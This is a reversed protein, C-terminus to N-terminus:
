EIYEYKLDYDYTTISIADDVEIKYHQSVLYGAGNYVKQSWTHNSKLPPGGAVYYYMSEAPIELFTKENPFYILAMEYYSWHSPLPKNGNTLTVSDFLTWTNGNLWYRKMSLLNGNADYKVFHEGTKKIPATTYANVKSLQNNEYEFTYYYDIVADSGYADIRSVQKSANYTLGYRFSLQNDKNYQLTTTILDNAYEYLRFGQFTSQGQGTSYINRRIPKKDSSYIYEEALLNNSFVKSLLMKKDSSGDKKCAGVMILLVLPILIKKM